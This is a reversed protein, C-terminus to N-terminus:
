LTIDRRHIHIIHIHHTPADNAITENDSSYEETTFNEDSLFCIRFFNEFKIQAFVKLVNIFISFSLILKKIKKRKM